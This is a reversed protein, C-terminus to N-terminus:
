KELGDVFGVVKFETRRNEEHAEDECKKGNKCDNVLVTEGYGKWSMRGEAIGQSIIYEMASKARRQSLKMNYSDSGRSDTHSGMEVKITPNDVLLQVIKSLEKAADDRIYSKDYDYYINEIKIAKGLEIKEFTLDIYREVELVGPEMGKTSFYGTKGFYGEKEFKMTYDTDEKLSYQVLGDASTTKVEEEGTAKNILTVNIGDIPTNTDKEKVMGKASWKMEELPIEGLGIDGEEMDCPAKDYAYESWGDGNDVQIKYGCHEPDLDFKFAGDPGMNETALVSNYGDLLRVRAGELPNMEEDANVITGSITLPVMEKMYFHYIDDDGKGKERNSSVYGETKETNAIFGFDDARSNLPTGLNEPAGFGGDLGVSSEFVDLGGLGLLGDSSYYLTGDTHIFPFMENGESNIRKGLNLPKSWSENEKTCKWLDTGGYGGPMDSSFYLTMGDITLTPHGVSYEDSNYAFEEPDAWGTSTRESIYMKLKVIDDSSKQRKGNLFNNRTFYITTLEKNFAVPGEHFKTNVTESFPLINELKGEGGVSATFLNLFPENNWKHQRKVSIGLLNRNSVFVVKEGFYMPSFDSNSSNNEENRLQFRDSVERLEKYYDSHKVHAAARSDTADMNNYKSMYTTAEEYKGNGKLMEAYRLYDEPRPDNKIVVTYWKEANAPDRMEYYSNAMQPAVRASDVGQDLISHYYDVAEAYAMRDHLKDARKIRGEQGLVSLISFYLTAVLILPKKMM